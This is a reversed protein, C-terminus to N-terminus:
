DEDEEDVWFDGPDDEDDNYGFGGTLINFEVAREFLDVEGDNNLDFLRDFPGKM